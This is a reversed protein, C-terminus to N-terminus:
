HHPHSQCATKEDLVSVKMLDLQEIADSVTEAEVRFPTIGASVLLNVARVGMGKCLVGEIKADKLLDVPMCSGHTHASNGNQIIELAGTESDYIIFYPASGFHDSLVSDRAENNVTPICIRM